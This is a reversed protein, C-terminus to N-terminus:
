MMPLTIEKVEDTVPNKKPRGRKRKPQDQSTANNGQYQSNMTSDQQQQGAENEDGNMSNEADSDDLMQDRLLEKMEEATRSPGELHILPPSPSPIRVPPPSSQRYPAAPTLKLEERPEQQDFRQHEQMQQMQWAKAAARLEREAQMEKFAEKEAMAKIHMERMQEEYRLAQKKEYVGKAFSSGLALAFKFEVPMALKSQYKLVIEEIYDDYDHKDNVEYQFDKYWDTMDCGFPKYANNITVLGQAAFLLSKKFIERSSEQSKKTRVWALENEIEDLSNEMTLVTPSYAYNVNKTQYEHLLECKRRRVGETSLKDYPNGTTFISSNLVSALNITDAQDQKPSSSRDLYSHEPHKHHTERDRNREDDRDRHHDLDHDRNDDKDNQPEPYASADEQGGMLFSSSPRPPSPEERKLTKRTNLLFEFEGKNDNETDYRTRSRDPMELFSPAIKADDMHHEDVVEIQSNLNDNAMLPRETTIIDDAPTEIQLSM